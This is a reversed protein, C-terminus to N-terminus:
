RATEARDRRQLEKAVRLLRDFEPDGRLPDLDRDMTFLEVRDLGRRLSDALLTVAQEKHKPDFKVAAAFLSGIQYRGYPTRDHVLCYDADKLADELKGLRALSVGRGARAALCDPYFGILQNMVDLAAVNDGKLESLAHAKNQFAPQCRPNLKLAEDCDAIVRDALALKAETTVADKRGHRLRYYARTAWGVDDQPVTNLGKLLDATADKVHGLELRADYRILLARVEDPHDALVATLDREAGVFDRLSRKVLARNMLTHPVRPELADARDLDALAEKVNGLRYNMNGRNAYPWPFEPRLAICVTFSTAAAVTDGVQEQSMGKLHWAMYHAPDRATLEALHRLAERHEGTSFLDSAAAYLDAADMAALEADTRPKAAETKKGRDIADRQSRLRDPLPGLKAFCTKAFENWKLARQQGAADARDEGFQREAEARILFTNGLETLLEGREGDTLRAVKPGRLWGGGVDVGYSAVIQEVLEQGKTRSASSANRANLLVMATRATGRTERALELSEARVIAASRQYNKAQYYAGASLPLVVAATGVLAIAAQRVLRPHRRRFKRLLEVVSPNAAYKLPLHSQHRELDEKLQDASAYRRAPDVALLRHLIAVVAPSVARNRARPDPLGGHRAALMRGVVRNPEGVPQEYPLEGTLLEYLIVGISYLDSRADIPLTRGRMGELQEPAMYPITGGARIPTGDPNLDAALNFDLLMPQGHDTLLINAPKLDRHLLGHEHAHILGNVVQTMIWLVADVYSATTLKQLATRSEARAAATRALVPKLFEAGTAPPRGLRGSYEILHALTTPGFFPMCVGQLRGVRHVSYVPVINTHQLKALKEPEASHHTSVKLAVPRDALDTQQALFVLGFSGSGLRGKLRFGEWVDGVKPFGPTSSRILEIKGAITKAGRGSHYPLDAVFDGDGVVRTQPYADHEKDALHKLKGPAPWATVDVHYRLQYEEPTVMHGAQMRQRYEEFAIESLVDRRENLVTFERIYTDLGVPQGNSWHLDLDVRVLECLVSVYEPDQPEPLFESLPAAGHSRWASEFAEVVDDLEAPKRAAATATTM